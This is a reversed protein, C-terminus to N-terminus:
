ILSLKLWVNGCDVNYAACWTHTPPALLRLSSCHWFYLYLHSLKHQHLQRAETEDMAERIFKIAAALREKASNRIRILNPLYRVTDHRKVSYTNYVRNLFRDQTLSIAFGRQPETEIYNNLSDWSHTSPFPNQVLAAHLTYVSM